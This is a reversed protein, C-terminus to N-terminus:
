CQRGPRAPRAQARSSQLAGAGGRQAISERAGFSGRLARWGVSTAHLGDPGGLDCAADPLQGVGEVVAAVEDPSFLTRKQDVRGRAEAVQARGHAGEAVHLRGDDERVAVVVVRSAGAPKALREDRRLVQREHGGLLGVGALRDAGLARAAEHARVPRPGIVVRRRCAERDHAAAVDEVQSPERDLRDPERAVRRPREAVEHSLPAHEERAVGDRGDHAEVRGLRKGDGRVARRECAHRGQREVLEPGSVVRLAERALLEHPAEVGARGERLAVGAVGPLARGDGALDAGQM